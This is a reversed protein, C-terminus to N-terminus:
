AQHDDSQEEEEDGKEEELKGAVNKEADTMAQDGNDSDTREDDTEEIGISRDDDDENGKEEEDTSLWTIDGENVYEDDSQYSDDELGWNIETDAKTASSGKGEDLVEPIVGVGESLTTFKGILEATVEPTISAGESLDSPRRRRTPRKIPDSEDVGTPKSTVLCEHIEHLRREEKAIEAETKSISKGLELAVDPKPIINDEASISSKKKPTVSQKKKQSGKGRTKKPPALGTSYGIFAKYAIRVFKLKNLVDDDKITNLGSTLGKPISKHLSFFHNIIVKTFRPYEHRRLKSQKYDIQYQFDGWILEAFDINKKYIIEWLIRVRSQRLRDNSSSKRSLCKNIITALARWPQHMHDVFMSALHNLHSKYGLEILFTLLAEEFAPIVFEEGQVRLVSMNWMSLDSM